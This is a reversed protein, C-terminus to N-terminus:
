AKKSRFKLFGLGVLASGLLGMTAPEPTGTSPVTYTYTITTTGGATANGSFFVGNAATGGYTGSNGAVTFGVNAAGPQTYSAFNASAVNFTPAVTNVPSGPYSYPGAPAGYAGSAFTSTATVNNTVGTPGTVTLPVSASGNTFSGASGTSNFVSLNATTTSSFDIAIATLTGLAPNFSTLTFADSFPTTQATTTHSYSIQAGFASISMASVTALLSLVKKM